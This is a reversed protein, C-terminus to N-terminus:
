EVNEWWEECIPCFNEIEEFTWDEFSVVDGCNPCEFWLGEEELTNDENINDYCSHVGFTDIMWNVFEIAKQNM